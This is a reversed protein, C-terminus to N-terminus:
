SSAFRLVLSAAALLLFVGPAPISAYDRARIHASIAGVFFLVLGVAAALGLAPVGIGILLGVAGAIKVVALPRLMWRRVRARTMKEILWVPRRFDMAAAFGNAAATLAGVAVYASFV